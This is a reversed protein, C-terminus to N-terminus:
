NYRSGRGGQGARGRPRAARRARAAWRERTGSSRPARARRIGAVRRRDPRRRARRELGALLPAARGGARPTSGPRTATSSRTSSRALARGRGAPLHALRVPAGGMARARVLGRRPRLQRRLGVAPPRLRGARRVPDRAACAPRARCPHRPHPVDGGTWRTSRAPRRRRRARRLHDADDGDAWADLLAPLAPNPYCFLSVRIEDPAPPPLASRRGSRASRRTTAGFRTARRRAPRARAAPRRDGRTFGPFGSAARCRCGRIRRRRPRARRRGLSRREPIRPRVVRAAAAARAMAEVYREPLGCGFAEVVVDAPTRM